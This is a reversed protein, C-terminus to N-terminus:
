RSPETGNENEKHQNRCRADFVIQRVAARFSKISEWVKRWDDATLPEDALNRTARDPSFVKAAIKARKDAM